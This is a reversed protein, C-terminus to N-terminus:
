LVADVGAEQAVVQGFLAVCAAVAAPPPLLAGAAVCLPAAARAIKHVQPYPRRDQREVDKSLVVSTNRRQLFSQM